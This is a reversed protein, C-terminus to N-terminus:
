AGKKQSQTLKAVFAELEIVPVLRCRGVKVTYIEGQGLLKYFLSRGLGLAQAAEEIRLLYRLRGEKNAVPSLTTQGMKM